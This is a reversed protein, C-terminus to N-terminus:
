AKFYAAKIALSKNPAAKISSICINLKIKGGIVIKKFAM